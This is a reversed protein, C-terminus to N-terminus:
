TFRCTLLEYFHIVSKESKFESTCFLLVQDSQSWSSEGSTQFSDVCFDVDGELLTWRRKNSIYIINGDSLM